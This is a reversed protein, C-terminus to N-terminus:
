VTRTALYEAAEDLADHLSEGREPTWDCGFTGASDKPLGQLYLTRGETFLQHRNLGFQSRLAAIRSAITQKM